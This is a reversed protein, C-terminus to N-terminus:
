RGWLRRMEESERLLKELPGSAEMEGARMVIVRDALALTERRHSVALCASRGEGTGNGSRPESFRSWLLRETGTDLASSMDDIFYLEPRRLFMRAAAARQVQGGSLKLGRPGIGTGLGQPLGAVDEGLAAAYLAAELAAADEEMGLLLNEALTDSFLAPTQPTYASRPPTFFAAPDAVPEGNWLMAGECPLLGQIARLLTTKGSGIRGTVVVLEGAAIRLDINRIGAGSPYLCSLKSVELSEFPRAGAAPGSRRTEMSSTKVRTVTRRPQFAPFEKKGAKKQAGKTIPLPKKGALSNGSPDATLEGLRKLSVATQQYHALFGGWFCTYDSVFSLCFVFLSFDGLSFGGAGARSAIVLLLIGTGIGVTNHYIADLVQNLLGDRLAARRRTECLKELHAIAAKEAGTVKIAQVGSFAETMAGTAEESAKRALERFRSVKNEAKQAIAVVLVLPVFAVLTVVPDIRVLITVSAVTFVASGLVDLTWSIADEIQGADEKLYDLAEAASCSLASAGPQALIADFANSRVLASMTFRHLIDVGASVYIHAIRAATFAAVLWLVSAVGSPNGELADFFAKVLLGPIIFAGHVIMWLFGDLAYLGPRYAMLRGLVRWAKM